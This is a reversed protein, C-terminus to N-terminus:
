FNCDWCSSSDYRARKGEPLFSFTESSVFRSAEHSARRNQNNQKTKATLFATSVKEKAEKESTERWWGDNGQRLFRGSKARVASYVHDIMSKRKLSSDGM